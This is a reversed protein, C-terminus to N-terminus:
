FPIEDDDGAATAGTPVGAPGGTPASADQVNPEVTADILEEVRGDIENQWQARMNMVNSFGAQNLEDGLTFIAQAYRNTGKMVVTQTFKTTYAQVPIGRALLATLYEDFATISTSPIILQMPVERGAVMVYLIRYNAVAKGKASEATEGARLLAPILGKSRWQNYPCTKCNIRETGQAVPTATRALAAHRFGTRPTGFLGDQSVCAPAKEDDPVNQTGFPKDWLVNRDHGGLVVGVFERATEAPADTFEFMGVGGNMIKIQPLKPRDGGIMGKQANLLDRRIDDPLSAMVSTGTGERNNEPM